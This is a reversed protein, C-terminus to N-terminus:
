DMWRDSCSKCRDSSGNRKNFIAVASPDVMSSSGLPPPPPAEEEEKTSREPTRAPRLRSNAKAMAEWAASESGRPRVRREDRVRSVVEDGAESPGLGLRGRGAGAEAGAGAGAGASGGGGGGGGRRGVGGWPSPPPPVSPPTPISCGPGTSAKIAASGLEGGGGGGSEVGGGCSSVM